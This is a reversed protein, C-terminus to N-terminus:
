KGWVAHYMAAVEKRLPRTWNNCDEVIELLKNDDVYSPEEYDLVIKQDEFSIPGNDFSHMDLLRYM